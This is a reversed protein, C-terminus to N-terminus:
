GWNLKNRNLFLVEQNNIEIYEDLLEADFSLIEGNDMLTTDEPTWQGSAILYRDNLLSCFRILEWELIRYDHYNILVLQCHYRVFSVFDNGQNVSQFYETLQIYVEILRTVLLEDVLGDPFFDLENSVPIDKYKAMYLEFHTRLISWIIQNMEKKGYQEPLNSISINELMEQIISAADESAHVKSITRINDKPRHLLEDQDYVAHFYFQLYCEDTEQYTVISNNKNGTKPDVLTYRKGPHIKKKYTIPDYFGVPNNLYLPKHGEKYYSLILEVDELVHRINHVTLTKNINILYGFDHLYKKERRNNGM